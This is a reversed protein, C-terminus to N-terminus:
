RDLLDLNLPATAQQVDQASRVEIAPEREEALAKLIEVQRQLVVPFYSLLDRGQATFNQIAIAESTFSVLEVIAIAEDISAKLNFDNRTDLILEGLCQIVAYWLPCFFLDTNERLLPIAQFRM